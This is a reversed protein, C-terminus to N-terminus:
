VSAVDHPDKLKRRILTGIALAIILVPLYAVFEIAFVSLNHRAFVSQSVDLTNFWPMSFNLSSKSVPWYIAIGQGHNYFSDLLLHSLWAGAGLLLCRFSIKPKLQHLTLILGILGINVFVSHSINYRQHGWGPLPWDPLNAIAVFVIPLGLRWKWNSNRPLALAAFALGVLSHGVPSM